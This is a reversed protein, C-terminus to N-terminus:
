QEEEHNLQWGIGFKDEVYGYCKSWFTEQLEMMVHGGEKLQDFISKIEDLDSSRLFLSINNGAAFPMGPPVDSFMVSSGKVKIEAHMVLDRIEDTIPFEDDPPMDGFRMVQPEAKFIGAYFEVAELCNGDFNLYAEVSM